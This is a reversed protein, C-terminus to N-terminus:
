VFVCLTGSPEAPVCLSFPTLSFLCLELLSDGEFQLAFSVLSKVKNEM